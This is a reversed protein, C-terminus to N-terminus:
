LNFYIWMVGRVYYQFIRRNGAPNRIVYADVLRPKDHIVTEVPIM